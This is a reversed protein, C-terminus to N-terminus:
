RPCRSMLHIYARDPDLYVFAAYIDAATDGLGGIATNCRHCLFGRFRGTTHCHDLHLRKSMESEPTGCKECCGGCADFALLLDDATADCPHYGSKKATRRSRALSEKMRFVLDTARREKSRVRNHSRKRERYEADTAWKKQNWARAAKRGIDAFQENTLRRQRIYENHKEKWGPTARRKRELRRKKNRAAPTKEQQRVRKLAEPNGWLRATSKCVGLEKGIAVYTWGQERLERARNIKEDRTM